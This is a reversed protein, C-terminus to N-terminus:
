LDVEITVKIRQRQGRQAAKRLVPVAAGMVTNVIASVSVKGALDKTALADLEEATKIDKFYISLHGREVSM